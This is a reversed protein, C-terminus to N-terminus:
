YCGNPDRPTRRKDCKTYNGGKENILTLSDFSTMWNNYINNKELICLGLVINWLLNIAQRCEGERICKRGLKPLNWITHRANLM